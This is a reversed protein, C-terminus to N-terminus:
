ESEAREFKMETSRLKKGAKTKLVKWKTKGMKVDRERSFIISVENVEFSHQRAFNQSTYLWASWKVPSFLNELRNKQLLM